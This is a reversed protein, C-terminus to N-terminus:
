MFCSAGIDENVKQHHSLLKEWFMARIFDLHKDRYVANIVDFVADSVAKILEFAKLLKYSNVAQHYSVLKERITPGIFILSKYHDVANIVNFVADSVAKILEFTKLLKYEISRGSPLRILISPKDHNFANVYRTLYLELPM